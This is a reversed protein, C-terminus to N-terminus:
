FCDPKQGVSVRYILVFFYFFAFLVTPYGDFATASIFLHGRSRCFRQQLLRDLFMYRCHVCISFLVFCECLPKQQLNRDVPPDLIESQPMFHLNTRGEGERGIGEKRRGEM